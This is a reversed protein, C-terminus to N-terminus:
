TNMEMTDKYDQRRDISGGWGDLHFVRKLDCSVIILKNIRPLNFSNQEDGRRKNCDRERENEERGDGGGLVRAMM